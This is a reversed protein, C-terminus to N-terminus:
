VPQAVRSLLPLLITIGILLVFWCMSLARTTANVKYWARATIQMSRRCMKWEHGIVWALPGMVPAILIQKPEPIAQMNLLLKLASMVILMGCLAFFVTVFASAAIPVSNGQKRIKLPQITEAYQWQRRVGHHFWRMSKRLNSDPQHLQALADNVVDWAEQIMGM